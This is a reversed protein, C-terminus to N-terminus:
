KLINHAIRTTSDVLRCCRESVISLSGCRHRCRGFLKRDMGRDSSPRWSWAGSSYISRRSTGDLCGCRDCCELFSRLSSRLGNYRYRQLGTESATCCVCILSLFCLPEIDQKFVHSVIVTALELPLRDGQLNMWGFVGHNVHRDWSIEVETMYMYMLIIFSATAMNLVMFIHVPIHSRLSKGLIIYGIGGISSIIGLADGWLSWRGTTPSDESEASEKACLFGGLFATTVGVGELVVVGQQGLFIKAAVLLVSQSNTLITANAVTTYNLSMAFAVCLVSYSASAMFFTGWQAFTLTPIGDVHLSRIAFPSLLIATGQFRWVIKMTPDVDVQKALFPGISSLACVASGLTIYARLPIREKTTTEAQEEEDLVKSDETHRTSSPLLPVNLRISGFAERMEGLAQIMEPRSPLLSLNKTLGMSLFYDDTGGASAEDVHAVFADRVSRCEDLIAAGPNSERISNQFRKKMYAFLNAADDEDEDEDVEEHHSGLLADAEHANM